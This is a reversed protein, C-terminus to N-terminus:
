TSVLVVSLNSGYRFLCIEAFLFVSVFIGVTRHVVDRGGEGGMCM